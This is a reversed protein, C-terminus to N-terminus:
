ATLGPLPAGDNMRDDGFKVVEPFGMYDFCSALTDAFTLKDTFDLYRGRKFHNGAGGALVVLADNESHSDGQGLSSECRRQM